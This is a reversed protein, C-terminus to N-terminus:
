CRSTPDRPAMTSGACDGEAALLREVINEHVRDEWEMDRGAPTDDWSDIDEDEDMALLEDLTLGVSLQATETTQPEPGRASRPPAIFAGCSICFPSDGADDSTIGIDDASMYCTVSLSGVTPDQGVDQTVGATEGASNNLINRFICMSTAEETYQCTRCTFQLKHAEEDEKPYLMNSCESCFRFTIQELGAKPKGLNETTTSDAPSAM